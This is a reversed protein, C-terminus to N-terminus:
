KNELIGVVNGVSVVFTLFNGGCYLLASLACRLGGKLRYM